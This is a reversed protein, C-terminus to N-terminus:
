GFQNSLYTSTQNMSILMMNLNTYTTTYQRQIDAMRKELQSIQNNYTTISDKLILTRQDILGDTQTVSSAWAVLRTAFGDTSNSFLNVVDAYDNNLADALKSSDLTLTGGAQTTIGIEALYSLTGGSAPTSLIGRLDSQMQRVTGDGALVGAGSTSTGYASRSKLQTALDNYAKVFNAAATTVASNDRAVTLTTTSESKLTLIVGQIAGNITNSANTMAIGNVTFAADQAAVTETMPVAPAPAPPNATPNFALLDNIASDGGALITINSIAHSTGTQDASLALRYPTGSGDNVITASIGLGANNIADRIDRLSAGAAITVDTDTGDITYRVTSAGSSLAATDSAQGAAVLNQAKALATIAVAYSGAVASSDTTASLVSTNAPTAAYGQLSTKLGQASSGVSSALSKLSGFSSIKSQYSSVKANLKDIPQREITMLQSVLSQVDIGIGATTSSAAM